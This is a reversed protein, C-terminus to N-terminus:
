AKKKQGDYGFMNESVSRDGSFVVRGSGEWDLVCREFVLWGEKLRVQV